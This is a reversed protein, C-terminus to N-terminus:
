IMMLRWRCVRILRYSLWGLADADLYTGASRSTRSYISISLVHPLSTLRWTVRSTSPYVQSSLSRWRLSLSRALSHTRSLAVFCILSISSNTLAEREIDEEIWHM